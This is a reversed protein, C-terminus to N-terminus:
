MGLLADIQVDSMGQERMRSRIEADRLVRGKEIGQEIGQEIGAALGTKHAKELASKQLWIFDKRKHQLELEELSMAAEDVFSFADKIESEMTEPVYNLEGAHKIFYIWRDTISELEELSKTFKPLEVFILEIDDSYNILDCAEMMKFSTICRDTEPFMVFDTITLAIVPNLLTYNEGADLQTAYNKVANYLIHKEFAEVNLVQMEIIVKSGDDLVAKVDVYTDKMGRILPINYPDVIVLDSIKQANPFTILANLFSILLPKSKDSGFVKKFAYDTKVDLYRM